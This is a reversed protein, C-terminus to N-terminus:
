RKDAFNSQNLRLARLYAAIGDSHERDSEDLEALIIELFAAPIDAKIWEPVVPAFSDPGSEAPTHPEDEPADEPRWCDACVGIGGLADCAGLEPLQGVHDFLMEVRNRDAASAMTYSPGNERMTDCGCAECDEIAYPHLTLPNEPDRYIGARNLSSEARYENAFNSM